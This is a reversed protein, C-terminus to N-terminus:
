FPGKLEDAYWRQMEKLLAVYETLQPTSAMLAAAQNVEDWLTDFKELVVVRSMAHATVIKFAMRLEWASRCTAVKQSVSTTM